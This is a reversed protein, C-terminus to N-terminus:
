CHLFRDRGIVAWTGTVRHDEVVLLERHLACSPCIHKPWAYILDGPSFQDAQPCEVVLHEENQWLIRADPLNLLKVRLEPASDPAVAKSGADLTLRDPRPISIIRTLLVAAPQFPLDEFMNLYGWDNLFFTGPSYEIRPENLGIKTWCPFSGTGGCVLRPVSLGQTELASLLPLVSQWEAEVAALREVPDHHHVHGDYLHLGGPRIGPTNALLQYLELAAPGPAIGTRGMGLDVDLMVEATQNAAVLASSLSALPRPHDVLPVFQCHSYRKQLRIFRSVNPGVLPYALVIDTAGAEALLEAEAITACKHKVVGASLELKTLEVTKHTKVHPRMRTPGGAMNISTALHKRILTPYVALIPTYVDDPADLLYTPDMTATVAM